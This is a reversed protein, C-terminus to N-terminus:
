PSLGNQQAKDSARDMLISLKESAKQRYEELQCEEIERTMTQMLQSRIKQQEELSLARDSQAIELPKTAESAELVERSVLGIDL